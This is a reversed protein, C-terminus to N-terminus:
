NGTTEASPCGGRHQGPYSANIDCCFAKRSSTEAFRKNGCLLNVIKHKAEIIAAQTYQNSGRDDNRAAVILETVMMDADERSMSPEVPLWSMWGSEEASGAVIEAIRAPALQMVDKCWRDFAPHDAAPTTPMWFSLAVQLAGAHQELEACKSKLSAILTDKPDVYGRSDPDNKHFEAHCEVCIGEEHQVNYKIQSSDCCIHVDGWQRKCQRCLYTPDKEPSQAVPEPARELQNIIVQKGDDRGKYIALLRELEAIRRGKEDCLEKLAKTNALMQQALVTINTEPSLLNDTSM